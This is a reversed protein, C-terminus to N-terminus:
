ASRRHDGRGIKGDAYGSLFSLLGSHAGIWCVTSATCRCTSHGGGPIANSTQSRARQPSSSSSGGGMESRTKRISKAHLGHTQVIDPKLESCLKYVRYVIRMLGVPNYLRRSLGLIYLRCDAQKLAEANAASAQEIVCAVFEFKGRDLYKALTMPHAEGGSGRNLAPYIYLIKVPRDERVM